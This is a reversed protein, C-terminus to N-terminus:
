GQYRVQQLPLSSGLKAGKKIYHMMFKSCLREFSLKCDIKIVDRYFQPSISRVGYIRDRSDTSQLLASEWLVELFPMSSAASSLTHMGRPKMIPDGRNCPVNHLFGTIFTQLMKFSVSRTDFQFLCSKRSRRFSALEQVVWIRTWYARM